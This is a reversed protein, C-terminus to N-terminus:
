RSEGKVHKDYWATYRELIDKQFSPREIDHYEDPYIVLETEVGLRRLSQYLQESNLIPVNVDEGGGMFLTPTKVKDIQFWPSLRMWKEVNRWPLGAEVEWAYMYEDVGYNAFANAESAGAVAGKFRTTRTIVVDTLMGGYSWGGVGLRDPDAVGMAVARDLAAMIDDYDKNGWDAFIARSFAQGYGTSGRPNAGVIAYGRAALMQWEQEFATSYQGNPGGHILLITPHKGKAVAGPPRVLFADIPTGDRSKAKFREVAGLAIGKLFADNVHSVRRLKGGSLASVEFPQNPRSELAVVEGNKGLDFGEVDLEGDVVREVPGGGAPVRALHSNGGEEVLFYISRGDPSFRPAAVVRDLARTLITEPGGGVPVVGLNLTGYWIDKPDGGAVFAVTRGDPSFVPASDTGPSATLRRPVAGAKAEVLFIDSNENSDPDPTRNSTFAISRGDPSWAPEDDDYPGSTIRASKKSAVDFVYVHHRLETLYGEGDKKFKLRRIVIPKPGSAKAGAAAGATADPTAADVDRVVLALRGGDPSWALWSVDAEYDTLRVAEGGRRDMLWVQAWSGDRDSLFALFRGDPSFRPSTELEPSATLRIAEGGALPALWIDSDSQDRTEDLSTVEYAVFRGDPSIQPDAVEKLAFIDGPKLPRTGALAVVPVTMTVLAGLIAAVLVVVGRVAAAPIAVGPIAAGTHIPRPRTM